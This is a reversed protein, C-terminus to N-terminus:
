PRGVAPMRNLLIASVDGIVLKDKMHTLSGGMILNKRDFIRADPRNSYLISMADWSAAVHNEFLNDDTIPIYKSRDNTTGSSKAFWHVKGPWLINEEGKMMKDIHPFLQEYDVIPFTQKFESVNNIASAKHEKGYETNKLNDLLTSFVELQTEVPNSYM